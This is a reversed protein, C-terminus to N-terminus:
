ALRASSGIMAVFVNRAMLSLGLIASLAPNGMIRGRVPRSEEERVDSSSAVKIPLGAASPFSIM